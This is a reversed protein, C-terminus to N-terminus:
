SYTAHIIEDCWEIPVFRVRDGPRLLTPPDARPDFLRVDTRGLIRWGGPTVFPYVGTQQGAIGVSGQPVCVRPTELRPVAILAPVSGLYAFGPMFGILYVRYTVSAHLDVVARETIGARAAIFALDPGFQGGYRVPIEIVRAAQDNEILPVRLQDRLWGRMEDLTVRHPNICVLLAAYAPILDLIDACQQARLFKAFAHVRDNVADDIEDAWEILISADGAPLLRPEAYIM